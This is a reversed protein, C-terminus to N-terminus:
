QFLRSGLGRTPGTGIGVISFQFHSAASTGFDIRRTCAIQVCEGEHSHANDIFRSAHRARSWNLSRLSPIGSFGDLDIRPTRTPNYM